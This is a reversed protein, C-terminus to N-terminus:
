WRTRKPHTGVSGTARIEVVTSCECPQARQHPRLPMRPGRRDAGPCSSTRLTEGCGESMRLVPCSCRREPSTHRQTAGQFRFLPDDALLWHPHDQALLTVCNIASLVHVVHEQHWNTRLPSYGRRGVRRDVAQECAQSRSPSNSGPEPRVSAAHKICALRVPDLRHCCWPLGLPSRTRLM